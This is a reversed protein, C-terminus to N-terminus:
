LGFDGAEFIGTTQWRGCITARSHVSGKRRAVHARSCTNHVFNSSDDHALIVGEDATIFVKYLTPDLDDVQLVRLTLMQHLLEDLLVGFVPLDVDFNSLNPLHQSSLYTRLYRPVPSPRAIVSWTAVRGPWM